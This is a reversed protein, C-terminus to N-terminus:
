KNRKKLPLNGSLYEILANVSNPTYEYFCVYNEITLDDLLDYPNRMAMVSLELDLKNLEKVLELQSKYINGNYTCVVVQEYNKAINVAEVIKKPTPKVHSDLTDFGPLKKNITSIIDFSGAEEDAITTVSPRVAIVLVKGKKVFSKGRILEVGEKVVEYSFAKTEKNEVIHDVERYEKDLISLDMDEKYELVKSVREDLTELSLKGAMFAEKIKKFSE